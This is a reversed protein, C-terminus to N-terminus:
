GGPSRSAGEPASPLPAPAPQVAEPILAQGRDLARGGPVSRGLAENDLRRVARDLVALRGRLSEAIADDTGEADRLLSLIEAREALVQARAEGTDM